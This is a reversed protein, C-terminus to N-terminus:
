FSMREFHGSFFKKVRSCVRVSARVRHCVLVSYLCIPIQSFCVQEIQKIWIHMYEEISTLGETSNSVAICDSPTQIRSLDYTMCPELVVKDELSEQAGAPLIYLPFM